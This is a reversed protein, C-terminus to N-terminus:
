PNVGTTGHYITIDMDPNKIGLRSIPVGGKEGQCRECVGASSKSTNQVSIEVKANSGGYTDNIYNALKMEAHKINGKEGIPIGLSLNDDRIVTYEVRNITVSGPSTQPWAKGSVSLYHKTEGNVTVRAAAVTIDTTNGSKVWNELAPRIADVDISTGKIESLGKVRVNPANTEFHEGDRSHDGDHSGSGNSGGHGGSNNDGSGGNHAGGTGGKGGGSGPPKGGGGGNGGSHGGFNSGGNGNNHPPPNKGGSGGNHASSGNHGNRGNNGATLSDSDSRHKGNHGDRRNPSSGGAHPHSERNRIGDSHGHGNRGPTHPAEIHPKGRVRGFGGKGPKLPVFNIGFEAIETASKAYAQRDPDSGAWDNLKGRAASASNHIGNALPEPTIWAFAHGIGSATYGYTVINAGGKAVAGFKNAINAGTSLNPDFPAIARDAAKNMGDRFARGEKTEYDWLEKSGERVANAFPESIKM